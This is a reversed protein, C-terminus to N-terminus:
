QRNACLLQYMRHGALIYPCVVQLSALRFIDKKPKM